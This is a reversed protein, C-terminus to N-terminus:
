WRDGILEQGQHRFVVFDDKSSYAQLDDYVMSPPIIIRYINWTRTPVFVCFFFEIAVWVVCARTRESYVATCFCLFCVRVASSGYVM